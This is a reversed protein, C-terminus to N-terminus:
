IFYPSNEDLSFDLPKEDSLRQDFNHLARAKALMAEQDICIFYIQYIIILM